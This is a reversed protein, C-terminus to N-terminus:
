SRVEGKVGPTKVYKIEQKYESTKFSQLLDFLKVGTSCM